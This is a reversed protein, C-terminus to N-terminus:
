GKEFGLGLRKLSVHKGRGIIVHDIVSIELLKGAEVAERTMQIDATSPSPDGSPHNHVLAVATANHRVAPKFIDAMRVTISSVSGTYIKTTTIIHHKTDLLVVHLEEQELVSLEVGLLLVIDEPTGVRPRDEEALMSVRRGIELAAKVKAAKANGLGRIRAMEAVDMRMLGALGGHQALMRQSISTVSEGQIGTNLIIALLESTSLAAPGALLLRERPRDDPHMERIMVSYPGQQERQQM